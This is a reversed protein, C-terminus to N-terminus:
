NWYRASSHLGASLLRGALSKEKEPDAYVRARESLYFADPFAAAFRAFEAEHRTREAPDAPVALDPDAVRIRTLAMKYTASTAANPSVPRKGSSAM